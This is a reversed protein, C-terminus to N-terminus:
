PRLDRKTIKDLAAWEKQGKETNRSNPVIYKEWERLLPIHPLMLDSEPEELELPANADMERDNRLPPSDPVSTYGLAFGGSVFLGTFVPNEQSFAGSMYATGMSTILGQQIREMSPKLTYIGEERWRIKIKPKAM